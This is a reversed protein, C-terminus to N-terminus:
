RQRKKSVTDGYMYRYTLLYTLLNTFTCNLLRQSRVASYYLRLFWKFQEVGTKQVHRHIHTLSLQDNSMVHDQVHQVNNLMKDCWKWMHTEAIDTM